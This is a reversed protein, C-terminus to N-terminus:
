RTQVEVISHLTRLNSEYLAQLKVKWTWCASIVLIMGGLLSIREGLARGSANWLLWLDIPVLLGVGPILVECFNQEAQIKLLRAAEGPLARRISWLILEDVKASGEQRKNGKWKEALAGISEGVQKMTVAVAYSVLALLVLVAVGLDSANLLILECARSPGLGVAMATLIVVSGPMVRAIIDFFIEPVLGWNM